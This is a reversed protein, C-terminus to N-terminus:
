LSSEDAYRILISFFKEFLHSVVRPSSLPFIPIKSLHNLLINLVPTTFNDKRFIIMTRATLDLGTILQRKFQCGGHTYRSHIEDSQQQEHVFGTFGFRVFDDEGHLTRSMAESQSEFASFSILLFCIWTM